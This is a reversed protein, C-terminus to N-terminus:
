AGLLWWGESWTLRSPIYTWRYAPLVRQWPYVTKEWITKERFSTEQFSTERITKKGPPSMEGSLRNGSPWKGPFIKGPHDKERIPCKGSFQRRSHYHKTATSASTKGFSWVISSINLHSCVFCFLGCLMVYCLPHSPRFRLAEIGM